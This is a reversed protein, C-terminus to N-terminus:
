GEKLLPEVDQKITATAEQASKRGIAVLDMERNWIELLEDNQTIFPQPHATALMDLFTEVHKPPEYLFSPSEMAKVVSSGAGGNELLFKAGEESAAYRIFEWGAEPNKAGEPIAYSFGGTWSAYEVKKPQPVVGWNINADKLAVRQWTNADTMAVRGQPFWKISDADPSRLNTPAVKHELNLNFLWQIAEYAAPQDVVVGTKDANFVDGGNQWIRNSIDWIDLPGATWGYVDGSTLKKATDLFAEWTWAGEKWQNYPTPIGAQEFMDINFAIGMPNVEAPIAFPKGDSKFFDTIVPYFAGYGPANLDWDSHEQVYPTLDQLFGRSQFRQFDFDVIMAVDPVDGSAFRTLLRDHYNEFPASTIEIQIGPNKKEFEDALLGYTTDWSGWISVGIKVQDGQAGAGAPRLGRALAIGGV